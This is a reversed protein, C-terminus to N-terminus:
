PRILDKLASKAGAFDRYFGRTWLGAVRPGRRWRPTSLLESRTALRTREAMIRAVAAAARERGILREVLARNAHVREALADLQGIELAWGARADALGYRRSVSWRTPAGLTVEPESVNGGHRRYLQLPGELLQRLGLLVTVRAFWGDYNDGAPIPLLLPLLERRHATCNGAVLYRDGYGARRVRELITGELQEGDPGVIHEDHILSPKSPDAALAAEIAAIKEPYWIDDQDSILIVDGTTLSMAKAFNANLGLNQTNREIRVAFPARAAFAEAIAVTGDSSGDDCIVLEDPLRTQAAFSQLQEGIFRAGNYSALAISIRMAPGYRLAGLLALRRFVM